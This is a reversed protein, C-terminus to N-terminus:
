SRRLFVFWELALLALSIGIVWRWLDSLRALSASTKVAEGGVKLRDSPGINSEVASRLAAYGKRQGIQYTGVQEVNRIVYRGHTPRIELKKGDPAAFSLSSQRSSALVLNRGPTLLLPTNRSLPPLLHDLANAIFIPFGVQLPFDSELPAFAVYLRRVGGSASEVILPVTQGGVEMEAITQSGSKASTREAKDVFTEELEVGSLLPHPDPELIRPKTATGTRSVPSRRGAAGFALVAKADVTGEEIGDYVVLDWSGSQPPSTTKELRVRPDLALARELFINGQSVLLVQLSAGADDITAAYNDSLLADKEKLKAEFVKPGPPVAITKGQTQNPKITLSTSDILKGDAYLNLEASKEDLGYNTVGAYLYRKEGESTAGLASIGINAGTEGVKHFLLQADGASFDEIEPFVGDSLLIIRANQQKQVISAALRLAEGVDVEADTPRLSNLLSRMKAVDASNSFVVRPTPGAEILSVRDGHKAESVLQDAAKLATAMRTPNGDTAQMSASTDIVLVTVSGGLGRQLMQPRAFAIVLLTIVLLQLVLLWSFRLKQFLANARVDTVQTPWLFTAPVRVDRRKMKLLYLAIIIGALPALWALAAFNAFNM